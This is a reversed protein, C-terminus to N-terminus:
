KLSLVCVAMNLRTEEPVSVVHSGRSPGSFSDDDNM